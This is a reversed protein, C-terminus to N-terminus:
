ELYGLDALREALAKKEQETYVEEGVPAVERKQPPEYEVKLTRDFLDTLAQGEMDIPVPLGLAALLTPAIDVINADLRHDPKVHPGWAVLIGEVRHTGEQRHPNCWRVPSFGRIKRVVALGRAPVLLLDPLWRYEQRSCHYLDETKHVEPFVEFRRGSRDTATVAALRERLEDRVAEYQEPAVQGHPQRGAVNLYLFGYMGAHIVCARTASWDIALDREISHNGEGFRSHTRAKRRKLSRDLIHAARLRAQEVNSRIKLYGWRKLLLNPQAKGELSGHGHDSMILVTANHRRAMDALKGIVGDLRTLCGAAVAARAPDRQEAGAELYRWAKHQLNDVLKFLVMMVDWGYQGGCYEALEYGQDFSRSIYEINRAFQEVGGLLKRQWNTTYSYDPWRQLIEDKLQRPYTFDQEISPTDFGSIMFGNVPKPPYTMPLSISGVRRGKESLIEWITKEQIEFNSNFHLTNTALDYKEFDIIGHRGPGKGTMFTTWAAPTIPPKTSNLIGSTGEAILRKLNPMHGADMMPGFVDFTAGDLGIVLIRRAMPTAPVGTTEAPRRDTRDLTAVHSAM